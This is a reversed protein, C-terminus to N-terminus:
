CFPYCPCFRSRVSKFTIEQLVPLGRGQAEQIMLSVLHRTATEMAILSAADGGGGGTFLANSGQELFPQLNDYLCDASFSWGSDIAQDLAAHVLHQALATSTQASLITARSASAPSASRSRVTRAQRTTPRKAVKKAPTAKGPRKAPAVKKSSAM